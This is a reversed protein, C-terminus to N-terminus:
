SARSNLFYRKFVEFPIDDRYYYFCIDPVGGKFIHFFAKDIESSPLISYTDFDCIQIKMIAKSGLIERAESSINELFELSEKTSLDYEEAIQKHYSMIAFYDFYDKAGIIDQSFWEIGNGPDIVSDYYTDLVFKLDPNIKKSEEIIKEALDLLKRAKWKSWELDKGDKEYGREAWKSFDENDALYLDDQFMIGDIDYSALDRYLSVLYEQFEPIFPSVREYWNTNANYRDDLVAWDRHKELIWPMNLTTMWAYVSIDRKKAEAVVEKLLDKIVPAKETKFYVGKGEYDFVRLFITNVGTEKLKDLDEMEFAELEIQAAKINEFYRLINNNFHEAANRTDERDNGAVVVIKQNEKWIDKKFFINKYDDKELNQMEENNLINKTTEGTNEAKHGGLIIINESNKDIYSKIYTKIGKEELFNSLYQASPYDHENTVIDVTKRDFVFSSHGKELFNIKEIKEFSFNPAITIDVEKQNISEPSVGELNLVRFIIKDDKESPLIIIKESADTYFFENDIISSFESLIESPDEKGTVEWFDPNTKSIYMNGLPKYYSDGIEKGMALIKGGNNTYEEIKEMNPFNICPFIVVDYKEMEDYSFIVDYPVHLQLLMMSDGLFEKFFRDRDGFEISEKSYFLATDAVSDTNYYYDEYKKIWEFIERRKKLDASGDMDPYDTEYFNCGTELILEALLTQTEKVSYSLIWSPKEKDLDRYFKLLAVDRLLNYFDCLSTDYTAADYEHVFIDVTDRLDISWGSKFGEYFGHWHELIIKIDPNAERAEKKIDELFEKIKEERWLIWTKWNGYENKPIDVGTEEKFLRKCDECHCAYNEEWDGFSNLFIVVDLFIGDVCPAIKRVTKLFINRYEPDNPCIWADESNEEVWFAVDGYFVAKRGDRGVQMWEPHETYISKKGRDVKGDRNMDVNQTQIELPALYVIVKIGNKNAERKLDKLYDLDEETVGINETSIWTLIVSANEEVAKEVDYYASIRANNWGLSCSFSLIIFLSLIKKLM